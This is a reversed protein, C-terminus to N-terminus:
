YLCLAVKTRFKTCVGLYMIVIRRNPENPDIDIQVMSSIQVVTDVSIYSLIVVIAITRLMKYRSLQSQSVAV